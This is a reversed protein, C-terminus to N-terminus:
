DSDASVVGGVARSREREVQLGDVGSSDRRGASLAVFTEQLLSGPFCSFFKRADNHCATSIYCTAFSGPTWPLLLFFKPTTAASPQYLMRDTYCVTTTARDNYCCRWLATTKISENAFGENNVKQSSPRHKAQSISQTYLMITGYDHM